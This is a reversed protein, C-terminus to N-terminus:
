AVHEKTAPEEAFAAVQVWPVLATMLIQALLQDRTLLDKTLMALIGSRDGSYSDPVKLTKVLPGLEAGAWLAQGWAHPLPLGTSPVVVERGQSDVVAVYSVMVTWDHLELVGCELGVGLAADLQAALAARARNLAGIITEEHGLPQPRVGSPVDHGVVEADPWYAAVGQRVATLKAANLSGVAIKM